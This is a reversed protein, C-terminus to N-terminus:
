HHHDEHGGGGNQRPASPQPRQQQAQPAPRQQQVQQTQPASRGQAQPAPQPQAQPAPQSGRNYGGYGGQRGYGGQGGYGGQQGYGSQGGGQPRGMGPNGGAQPYNGQPRAPTPQSAGFGGQPRGFNGPAQAGQVAGGQVQAGQAPATQGGGYALRGYTSGATNGGRYAGPQSATNGAPYGTQGGGQARNYGGQGFAGNGPAGAGRDATNAGRNYGNGGNGYAGPNNYGNGGRNQVGGNGNLSNGGRNVTVNNITTRNGPGGFRAAQQQNFARAEPNRDFRGYNGHNFVTASNSIYTNHNYIVTRSRWDPQWNHYGWSFHTFAAVAIGVGFGIALGTGFGIGGRPPGYYRYSPYVAIPAGYVAWPDYYPVYVVTPSAPEILIDGPAYTVALQPTTRLNGAAYARQRMAQVASLVDQPQNYYANGLQTTWGMNTNLNNLVQPFAVLSKVSPDWPQTNALQALQDPPYGGYQQVFQGANAVQAPYTAAALVQAVLTDPYLAIPAVLSDIQEPALPQYASQAEYDPPPPAGYDQAVATALSLPLMTAALLGAVAQQGLRGLMVPRRFVTIASAQESQATGSKIERM